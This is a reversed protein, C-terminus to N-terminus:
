DIVVRTFTFYDISSSGANYIAQFGSPGTGSDDFKNTVPSRAGAPAIINATTNANVYIGYYQSTNNAGPTPSYRQFTNCQQTVTGPSSVFGRYPFIVSYGRGCGAFLNQNLFAGANSSTLTHAIGIPLDLFSCSQITGLTPTVIGTHDYYAPTGTGANYNQPQVQQFTTATANVPEDLSLIGLVGGYTLSPDNYTLAADAIQPTNPIYVPFTFQSTGSRQSNYTVSLAPPGFSPLAGGAYYIGARYFNSFTCNTTTLGTRTRDCLIHVMANNFSCQQIIASNPGYDVTGAVRLHYDSYYDQGQYPTKMLDRESTFDCAYLFNQINRAPFTNATRRDVDISRYNHWFNTFNLQFKPSASGDELVLGQQSHMFYNRMGTILPTPAPTSLNTVQRAGHFDVSGAANRITLGQWMDNCAATITSGNLVFNANGDVVVGANADMLLVMGPSMSFISAPGSGSAAFTITGACHYYTGPIQSAFPSQYYTGPLLETPKVGQAKLNDLQCCNVNVKITISAKVSTNTNTDTATLTYTTTKAPNVVVSTTTTLNIDQDPSWAYTTSPQQPSALYLTASGGQCITTLNSKIALQAQAALSGCCM